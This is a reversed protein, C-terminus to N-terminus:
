NARYLAGELTHVKGEVEFERHDEKTDPDMLEM